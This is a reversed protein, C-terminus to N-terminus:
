FVGTSLLRVNDIFAADAPYGVDDIFRRLKVARVV